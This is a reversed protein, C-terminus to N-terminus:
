HVKRWCLRMIRKRFGGRRLRIHGNKIMENDMSGINKGAMLLSSVPNVFKVMNTDNKSLNKEKDTLCYIAGGTWIEGSKELYPSDIKDSVPTRLLWEGYYDYNTQMQFENANDMFLLTATLFFVVIVTMTRMFIGDRKRRRVGTKILNIHINKRKKRVKLVESFNKNM